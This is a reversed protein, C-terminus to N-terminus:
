GWVAYVETAQTVTTAYPLVDSSDASASWGYFILGDDRTPTITAYLREGQSKLATASDTDSMHYTVKVTEAFCVTLLAACVVAFFFPLLFHKKM